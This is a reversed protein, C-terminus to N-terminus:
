ILQFRIIMDVGITSKVLGLNTFTKLNRLVTSKAMPRRACTSFPHQYIFNAATYIEDKTLPHTAEKLAKRIAARNPTDILRNMNQFQLGAKIRNRSLHHGSVILTYCSAAIGEAHKARFLDLDRKVDPVM